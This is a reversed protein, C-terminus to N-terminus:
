VSSVLVTHHTTTLYHQQSLTSVSAIGVRKKLKQCSIGTKGQAVYTAMMIIYM